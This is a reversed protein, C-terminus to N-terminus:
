FPSIFTGLDLLKLFSRRTACGSSHGSAMARRRLTIFIAVLLVAYGIGIYMNLFLSFGILLFPHLLGGIVLAAIGGEPKENEKLKCTCLKM